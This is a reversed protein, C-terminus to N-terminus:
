IFDGRTFTYNITNIWKKFFVSIESDKRNKFMFLNWSNLNWKNSRKVLFDWKPELTTTKHKRWGQQATGTWIRQSTKYSKSKIRWYKTIYDNLLNMDPSGYHIRLEKFCSEKQFNSDETFIWLVLLFRRMELREITRQEWVSPSEHLRVCIWVDHSYYKFLVWGMHGETLSQSSIALLRHHTHRQPPHPGAYEMHKHNNWPCLALDWVHLIHNKVHIGDDGGDDTWPATQM